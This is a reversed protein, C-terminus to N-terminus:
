TTRAALETPSPDGEFSALARAPQRLCLVRLTVTGDRPNQKYNIFVQPRNENALKMNCDVTFLAEM